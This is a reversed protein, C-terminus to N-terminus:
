AHRNKVLSKRFSKIPKGIAFDPGHNVSRFIRDRHYSWNAFLRPSTFQSYIWVLIKSPETEWFYFLRLSMVRSDNRLEHFLGQLKSLEKGASNVELPELIDPNALNGWWLSFKAYWVGYKVLYSGAHPTGLYLIGTVSTLISQYDEYLSDERRYQGASVM